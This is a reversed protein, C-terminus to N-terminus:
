WHPRLAAREAPARLDIRPAFPAGQGGAVEGPGAPGAVSAVAVAVVLATLSAGM